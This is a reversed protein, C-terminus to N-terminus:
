DFEIGGTGGFFAGTQDTPEAGFKLAGGRGLGAEAHLHFLFLLLGGAGRAQIPRRREGLADTGHAIVEHL